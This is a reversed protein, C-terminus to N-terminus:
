KLSWCLVDSKCTLLLEHGTLHIGQTEFRRRGRSEIKAVKEGVFGERGEGWGGVGLGM